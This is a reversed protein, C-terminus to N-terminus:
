RNKLESCVMADQKGASFLPEKKEAAKETNITAKGKNTHLKSPKPLYITDREALSSSRNTQRQWLPAHPCAHEGVQPVADTKRALGFIDLM